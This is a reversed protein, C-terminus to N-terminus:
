SVYHFMRYSTKFDRPHITWVPELGTGPVLLSSVLL